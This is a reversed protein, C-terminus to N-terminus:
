QIDIDVVARHKDLATAVSGDEKILNQGKGFAAYTHRYQPTFSAILQSGMTGLQTNLDNNTGIADFSTLTWYEVDTITSLKTALATRDADVAYVDYTQNFTQTFSEDFIDLRLGRGTTSYVTTGDLIVERNGSVDVHPLSGDLYATGLVYVSKVREVENIENSDFTNENLAFTGHPVPSWEIDDVWLRTGVSDTNHYGFGIKIQRLCNYEQADTGTQYVDADSIDFVKEYKIWKDTNVPADIDDNFSYTLGVGRTVWDVAYAGYVHLTNTFYGKYWFSLKWTGPKKADDPLHLKVGGWNAVASINPTRDIFYSYDHNLNKTALFSSTVDCDAQTYRGWISDTFSGSEWILDTSYNELFDQHEYVENVHVSGNSRLQLKAQRYVDREEATLVKNYIAFDKIEGLWKPSSQGFEISTVVFNEMTTEIGTYTNTGPGWSNGNENIIYSGMTEGSRWLYWYHWVDEEYAVNLHWHWLSTGDWPPTPDFFPRGYPVTPGPSGYYDNYEVVQGTNSDVFRLLEANYSSTEYNYHQIKPKFKFAVTFDTLSPTDIKLVGFESSPTAPPTYASPWFGQEFQIDKLWLTADSNPTSSTIGIDAFRYTADYTSRSATVHIRRTEYPKFTFVQQGQDCFDLLVFVDYHMPNFVTVAVTYTEGDVLDVEDVRARVGYGTGTYTAKIWGDEEITTTDGDSVYTGNYLNTVAENISLSEDTLLIPSTETSTVTAGLNNLDITHGSATEAYEGEIKSDFVDYWYIGDDSVATRTNFYTRGDPYYHWVVIEDLPYVDGLDVTQFDPSSMGTDQWQASDLSEDTLSPTDVGNSNYSYAGAAVNTTGVFAKIEIWHNSSNSTSGFGLYDRIYRIYRPIAPKTTGDFPYFKVLGDLVSPLRENVIGKNYLTNQKDRVIAM